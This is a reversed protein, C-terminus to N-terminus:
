EDHNVCKHKDLARTTKALLINNQAVVAKTSELAETMVKVSEVQAELHKADKEEQQKEKAEAKIDQKSNRQAMYWIGICMTAFAGLPGTIKSFWDDPLQAQAEGISLSLKSGIVMLMLTYLDTFSQHPTM